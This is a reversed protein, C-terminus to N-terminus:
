LRTDRTWRDTQTNVMSGGGIFGPESQATTIGNSEDLSTEPDTFVKRQDMKSILVDNVNHMGASRVLCWYLSQIQHWAFLNDSGDIQDRTYGKRVFASYIDRAAMGSAMTVIRDFRSGLETVSALQMSDALAQKVQADTALPM